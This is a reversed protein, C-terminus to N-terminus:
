MSMDIFVCDRMEEGAEKCEEESWIASSIGDLNTIFNGSAIVPLDGDKQMIGSLKHIVDSVYIEKAQKTKSM